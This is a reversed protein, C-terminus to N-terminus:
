GFPFAPPFPPSERWVSFRLFLVHVKFLAAFAVGFLHSLTRCLIRLFVADFVDNGCGVGAICGINKKVHQGFTHLQGNDGVYDSHRFVARVFHSRLIPCFQRFFPYFHYCASM